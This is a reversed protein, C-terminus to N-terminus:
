SFRFFSFMFIITLLMLILAVISLYFAYRTDGFIIPIPGIMIIGAGKVRREVRKEKEAKEWGGKEQKEWEDKEWRRWEPEEESLPPEYEPKYEPEYEPILARESRGSIIGIFILIIGLFVLLVGVSEIM